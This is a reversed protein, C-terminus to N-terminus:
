YAMAQKPNLIAIMKEGDQLDSVFLRATFYSNSDEIDSSIVKSFCEIGREYAIKARQSM